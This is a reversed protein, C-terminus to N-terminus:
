KQLSARVEALADRLKAPLDQSHPPLALGAEVARLAAPRDKVQLRALWLARRCMDTATAPDSSGAARREVEAIVERLRRPEADLVLRLDAFGRDLEGRRLYEGGRDLRVGVLRPAHRVAADFDSLASDYEHRAARCRGRGHLAAADAPHLELAREYDALAAKVDDRAWHADGRARYAEGLQDDHTLARDFDNIAHLPEGKESHVLGRYFHAVALKRDRWLAEDCDALAHDLDGLRRRADSRVAFALANDRDLSLATDCDAVADKAEGRACRAAARRVYAVALKGDLRLAREADALALDANGRLLNTHSRESCALAFTADAALAADFDALARDYLRAKIFVAGRACWDAPTAPRWSSKTEDLFTRVEVASVAYAIQQQPASKGSVVGIVTGRDDLLPGGAEGEGLATQVLIVAPDPSDNTQGLNATGTQRVWGGNYLWLMEARQLHGIAHVSEGPSPKEPALRFEHVDDALTLLEVLALNRRADVALVAGTVTRGQERLKARQERYLRAETVLTGDQQLPFTAEVTERRSVFEATTILLRRQRDVIWGAARKDSDKTLVLAVSGVAHRYVDRGAHVAVPLGPEVERPPDAKRGARDLFARAEEAAVFLGAGQSEWAVAASMAVVAGSENVLPGGSDGENIPANAEVITAGRAYRKGACFYGDAMVRRCRVTGATFGWLVDSDYRNGVAFVREGPMVAKRALKLATVHAPLSELEVLALDTDTERRLVKGRVALGEKQLRPLHELYYAREGVITGKEATPFIVEVTPNDGVVHACTILLRRERDVVWGTGKGSGAANVWAVGDLTRRYIRPPAEAAREDRPVTGAALIGALLLTFLLLVRVSRM